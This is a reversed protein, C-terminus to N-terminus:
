KGITLKVGALWNIGPMPRLAAIFYDANWINNCQATFQIAHRGIRRDYMVQINGTQYPLLYESEDSTIFRYGTYTHIYAASFQRYSFGANIRGNYRPSYPIQKGISGDNPLYSSTTTALVYATNLSIHVKWDGATYVLKNETETGRSHVEALNHPTWIAGGLWIIWDHIDRNFISLDHYITFHGSKAKLTYGADENWGQEPKLQLNGGPYYYLENLTPTRYTKQTNIRLSLWSAVAFSASAGPLFIDRGNVEEMRANIAADLRDDFHKYNYAGAIALRDQHKVDNGPLTIWSLQVPAFLLLQSSYSFKYKFGIEQYYQSSTNTSQLSVADDRYSLDDSIFSSKAYILNKAHSRKWSALLRTSSNKQDKSSNAEFLAPPIHRDYDQQWASLEIINHDNLRYAVGILAAYGSLKSNQMNTEQGNANTYGFNNIASQVMGTANVYWKRGAITGALGGTRQGFSGIGGILSLCRKGTDFVPTNNELLLAGGVNGSGLLASSGGYVINVKNTLLVPLTSIDAIGLAANQIPIGNWLVASQAASSGRFNLTALGNMGYSRIFVPTQQALLDSVSQLQYQQLTVSDISQIKQGPTFDNVRTDSSVSRRGKVKVENLTSDNAQGFLRTAWFAAAFFIWKLTRKM